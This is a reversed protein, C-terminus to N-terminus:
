STNFTMKEKVNNKESECPLNLLTTLQYNLMGAEIPKLVTCFYRNLPVSTYSVAENTPVGAKNTLGRVDLGLSYFSSWRNQPSYIGQTDWWQCIM